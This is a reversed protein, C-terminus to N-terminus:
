NSPNAELRESAISRGPLNFAIMKRYLRRAEEGDGARVLIEGLQLVTRSLWYQGLPGIADMQDPRLLFDSVTLSYVERAQAPEERRQWILGLKYSVEVQTALPLNPLDLLRELIAVAESLDGRDDSAMAILCDAYALEAVYRMPHEPHNNILNGFLLQASSFDNMLRLLDGQKLGAHYALAEDPYSDVLRDLLVVAEGFHDSGRRECYLAAEFLARAAQQGEPYTDVMEVLASQAARFDGNSAYYSAEALFTREAASSEPYSNRLSEFAGFGAEARDEALMTKAQLLRVEANLLDLEALNSDGAREPLRELRQLLRSIDESLGQFDEAQLRLYLALWRLRLDLTTPVPDDRRQTLLDSVRRHARETAGGEMLARSINWEAMWRETPHIAGSFDVEDVYRMARELEGTRIEAVTLRLFIESIARASPREREATRYFDVANAFDGNMFYCDGILRNIRFNEESSDSNEKLRSLYEAAARYQPPKRQLAAYALLGYVDELERAGPYQELLFKADKEATSATEPSSLALQARLYYLQVILPHSPSQAIVQSLFSLMESPDEVTTLLLQLSIAMTVRGRGDEVIDKLTDRGAETEVGLLMGELLLLRSQEDASYVGGGNSREANLVEIAEEARDMRALLLVYELVYPFAAPRGGLDDVKERVNALLKEDAEGEWLIRQRLILAEFFATQEPSSAASKAREFYAKASGGDPVALELAGRLFFYWPKDRGSLDQVEIQDLLDPLKEAAGRDWEGYAIVARYLLYRVSDEGQITNLVSSAAQFDSQAILSAALGFAAEERIKESLLVPSAQVQRYQSEALGPLGSRLAREAADFKWEQSLYANEREAGTM